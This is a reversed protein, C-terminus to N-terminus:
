GPSFTFPYSVIVLGGSKPEPFTFRMFRANICTEVAPCHMTSSKTSATSVSGDKVIVFKVTIKGALRPTKVLERQYCYHLQNLNRKVVPEIEARSLHGMIAPTGPITGALLVNLAPPESPPTDAGPNAPGGALWILYSNGSALQFASILEAYTVDDDTNLLAITKAPFRERDTTMLQEIAPFNQKDGIKPLNVGVGLGLWDDLRARRQVYAGDARLHVVLVPLEAGDIEPVAPFSHRLATVGRSGDVRLWAYWGADYLTFLVKRVTGFPVDRGAHLEVVREDDNLGRLDGISRLEMELPEFTMGLVDDDLAFDLLWPGYNFAGGTWDQALAWGTEDVTLREGVAVIIRAGAPEGGKGEPLAIARLVVEAREHEAEVARRWRWHEAYPSCWAAWAGAAIVVCLAFVRVPTLANGNRNVLRM